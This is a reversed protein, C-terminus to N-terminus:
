QCAEVYVTSNYQALAPCSRLSIASAVLVKKARRSFSCHTIRVEIVSEWNVGNAIIVVKILPIFCSSPKFISRSILYQIVPSNPSGGLLDFFSRKQKLTRYCRGYLNSGAVLVCICHM